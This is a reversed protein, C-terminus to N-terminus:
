PVTVSDAAAGLPPEVTWSELLLVPTAVTGAETATAAPAVVAVKATVATLAPLAVIVAVSFPECDAVNVTPAATFVSTMESLADDTTPPLETVPVTCSPLGAGDPPADTVNDAFSGTVTGGLTVTGAPAVLAVNLTAVRATPPANVTVILADNLPTVADVVSNTVGIVGVSDNLESENFGVLTAPPDGDCPVAVSSLAAGDAPATTVSELSLGAAAVTGDFIVMAAPEVVPVNVTVVLWTGDGVFTV